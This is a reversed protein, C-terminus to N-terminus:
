ANPSDLRLEFRLCPGDAYHGPLGSVDDLEKAGLFTFGHSTYLRILAENHGVTDLRVHTRGLERAHEIAWAVVEGVLRRGRFEPTTAIRHLFVSPDAEMDKWIQPDEYAVVWVCALAEDIRLQWQRGEEIEREVLAPDIAPWVVQGKARQLASAQAYLALLADREDASTRRVDM